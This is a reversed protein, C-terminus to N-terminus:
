GPSSLSNLIPLPHVTIPTHLSNSPDQPLSLQLSPHSAPPFLQSAVISELGAELITRHLPPLVPPRLCRPLATVLSAPRPNPPPPCVVAVVM